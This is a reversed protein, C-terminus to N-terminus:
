VFSCICCKASITLSFPMRFRISSLQSVSSLGDLLLFLWDALCCSGRCSTVEERLPLKEDKDKAEAM